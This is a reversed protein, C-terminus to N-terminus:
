QVHVKVQTWPQISSIEKPFVNTGASLIVTKKKELWEDSVTWFKKKKLRKIWGQKRKKHKWKPLM